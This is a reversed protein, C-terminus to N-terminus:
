PAGCIHPLDLETLYTILRLFMSTNPAFLKFTTFGPIRPLSNYIFDSFSVLSLYPVCVNSCVNIKSVSTNYLNFKLRCKLWFYESIQQVKAGLSQGSYKIVHCISFIEHPSSFKRCIKCEDYNKCRLQWSISDPRRKWRHIWAISM